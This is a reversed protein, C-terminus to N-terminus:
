YPAIVKFTDVFGREDDVVRFLNVGRSLPITCSPLDSIKETLLLNGVIDYLYIVGSFQSLFIITVEDGNQQVAIDSNFLEEDVEDIEVDSIHFVYSSDIDSTLTLYYDRSPSISITNGTLINELYYFRDQFGGDSELSIFSSSGRDGVLLLPYSVPLTSYREIAINVGDNITSVSCRQKSDLIKKSDSFRDFDNEGSDSQYLVIDDGIDGNRFHIRTLDFTQAKESPSLSLFSGDGEFLTLTGGSVAEVFFSSNVKINDISPDTSVGDNNVTVYSQSVSNWLYISGTILDDAVNEFEIPSTFPNGLLNWSDTGSYIINCRVSNERYYLGVYSNNLQDRTFRSIYGVGRELTKSYDSEAKWQKGAADYRYLYSIGTSPILDSMKVGEFPASIFNWESGYSNSEYSILSVSEFGSLNYLSARESLEIKRPPPTGDVVSASMDDSISAIQSSTPVGNSWSMPDLWSDDITGLWRSVSPLSLEQDENLYGWSSVRPGSWVFDGQYSGEGVLQLSNGKLTSSSEEVEVAASIWGDFLDDSSIFPKGWTVIDLVSGDYSLAFADPGTQISYSNEITIVTSQDLERRTVGDGVLSWSRDIDGDSGNIFILSFLELNYLELDEIVIEIYEEFDPSQDDNYHFENIWGKPFGSDGIVISDVVAHDQGYNVMGDVVNFPVVAIFLKEGRPLGEVNIHDRDPSLIFEALNDGSNFLYPYSELEESIIYDAPLISRDLSLVLLLSDVSRDSLQWEVLLSGCEARFRFNNLDVTPEAVSSATSFSTTESWDGRIFSNSISARIFYNTSPSLGEVLYSDSSISDFLIPDTFEINDSVEVALFQDYELQNKNSITINNVSIKDIDIEAVDPTTPSIHIDELSYLSRSNDIDYAAVTINFLGTDGIFIKGSYYSELSDMLVSDVRIATGYIVFASDIGSDDFINATVTISDSHTITKPTVTVSSILPPQNSDFLPDELDTPPPPPSLERSREQAILSFNLITIFLILYIAKM